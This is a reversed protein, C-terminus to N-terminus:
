TTRSRARAKRVSSGASSSRSRCSSVERTRRVKTLARPLRRRFAELPGVNPLIDHALREMLRSKAEVPHEVARRFEEVSRGMAVYRAEREPEPAQLHVHIFAPGFAEVLTAHDEAFRLGDIALAQRAKGAAFKAVLRKCLGRQREPLSSIEEGLAQRSNRTLPRGQEELLEDIIASFRAYAYGKEELFRAATTKGAAIPGSFGVVCRTLWETPSAKLDPIILYDEDENGVAEFKGYWFFLGVVASTIADVEDHSVDNDLFSGTIGFETLGRKLYELSARKRPINMIDQAAGPYSEIVPIGLARFHTALRMGRETLGQMSPILCPYVNVGRRKLVLECERMIGIEARMPDDDSVSTRGKPLSLPSDISVLDPLVGWTERILEVDTRLRKTTPRAGELLCWGSPRRESGSPDIGVVRLRGGQERGALQQYTVLPGLRGPFQPVFIHNKKVTTPKSAWRIERVESGFRHSTSVPAVGLGNGLKMLIEDFIRRMGEIDAHNYRILLKASEISGLRYEHWLTPAREGQVEAVGNERIIGLHQEIAKQGGRLGVAVGLFRLDVHAKPLRLNPFERRVFKLDFMQGNFTVLCKAAELAQRIPGLDTNKLHCLYEDQLGAGVITIEDYYHSLGTTEIDLFVTSDPFTVAIRWHERRPLRDAFFDANGKALAERSAALVAETPERGM